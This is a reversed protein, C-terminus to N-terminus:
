CPSISITTAIPWIAFKSDKWCTRSPQEANSLMTPVVVMTRHEPPIGDSFDLRPLPRPHVLLIALWNVVGVGLHAACM